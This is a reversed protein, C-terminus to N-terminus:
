GSFCPAKRIEVSCGRRQTKVSRQEEMRELTRVGEGEEELSLNGKCAIGGHKRPSPSPGELNQDGPGMCM